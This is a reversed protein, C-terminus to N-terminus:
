MFVIEHDLGVVGSGISRSGRATKSRINPPLSEVSRSARRARM